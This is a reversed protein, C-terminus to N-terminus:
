ARTVAHVVEATEVAEGVDHVRLIDAGNLIAITNASVTATLREAPSSLPADGTQIAQGLFSKRSLGALVPYGLSHFEHLRKLLLFNERVSKGFGFGPDVVIEEIGHARAKALSIELSTKVETVIDRDSGATETSWQMQEPRHATHMLIVAARYKRCIGPLADDFTFGSIDNVISAGARLAEEAVEAKWTDISIPLATHQKLARILPVTRGIEEDASVKEAGPRTSEGGIDIIDAGASIMSLAHRLATQRHRGGDYFSDPTANLIGMILPKQRYDLVQKRCSLGRETGTDQPM